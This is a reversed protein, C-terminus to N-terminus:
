GLLRQLGCKSGGVAIGPLADQLLYLGWTLVAGPLWTFFALRIFRGDRLIREGALMEVSSPLWVGQWAIVALSYLLAAWVAVSFLHLLWLWRRDESTNGHAFIEDALRPALLLGVWGGLPLAAGPSAWALGVLVPCIMRALRALAQMVEAQGRRSQALHNAAAGWLGGLALAILGGLLAASFVNLAAAGMQVLVDRGLQDTGLPHEGSRALYVMAPVPDADALWVLGVVIPAAALVLLGVGFLAKWRRASLDSSSLVSAKQVPSLLISYLTSALDARAATASVALAMLCLGIVAVGMQRSALGAALWAGIGPVGFLPEVILLLGLLWGTIQNFLGAASLGAAMMTEASWESRGARWYVRVAERSVLLAPLLALSLAAWLLRDLPAVGAELLDSNFLGLRLGPVLILLLALGVPPAALAGTFIRWVPYGWWGALAADVVFLLGGLIGALVGTLLMLTLSPLLYQIIEDWAVQPASVSLGVLALIFTLTPAALRKVLGSLAAQSRRLTVLAWIEWLPVYVFAGLSAALALFAPIHANRSPPTM